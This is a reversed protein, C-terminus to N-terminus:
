VILMLCSISSEPFPTGQFLFSIRADRSLIDEVTFGPAFKQSLEGNPDLLKINFTQISGVGGKDVELQQSIRTTTGSLSIYDRSRKDAVLGGYVLGELGYVLGDDGYAAFKEVDVAGYIDDPFGDISLVINPEKELGQAKLQAELTLEQAM